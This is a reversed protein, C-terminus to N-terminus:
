FPTLLNHILLDSNNTLTNFWNITDRSQYESWMVEKYSTGFFSYQSYNYAMGLVLCGFVQLGVLFHTGFFKLCYVCGCDQCQKIANIVSTVFTAYLVVLGGLIPLLIWCYAILMPVVNSIFFPIFVLVALANMVISSILLFWKCSSMYKKTSKDIKDKKHAKVMNVLQIISEVLVAVVSPLVYNYLRYGFANYCRWQTANVASSCKTQLYGAYGLHGISILSLIFDLVSYKAPSLGLIYPRKVVSIIL